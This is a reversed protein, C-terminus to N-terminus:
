ATDISMSPGNLNLQYSIRNSIMSMVVGTGWYASVPQQSAQLFPWHDTLSAGIYVATDSGSIRSQSYGADEFCSVALELLIRQQPDMCQAERPSIGFFTADFEDAGDIFGGWKSVSKDIEDADPSYHEEKCWREPPIESISCVGDKLNKWFETYNSAGPFRC